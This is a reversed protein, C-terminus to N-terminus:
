GLFLLYIGLNALCRDLHVSAMTTFCKKVINIRCELRLLLLVFLAVVLVRSTSGSSSNYRLALNNQSNKNKRVKEICMCFLSRVISWRAITTLSVLFSMYIQPWFNSAFAMFLHGGILSANFGMLILADHIKLKHSLLPLVILAGVM